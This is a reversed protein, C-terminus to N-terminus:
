YLLLAEGVVWGLSGDPLAVRYWHYGGAPEPGGLVNLVTGSTVQQLIDADTGPAARVNLRPTDVIAVDGVVLSTDSSGAAGAGWAIYDSAM